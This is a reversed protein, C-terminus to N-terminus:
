DGVSYGNVRRLATCGYVISSAVLLALSTACFNAASEFLARPLILRAEWPRNLMSARSRFLGGM